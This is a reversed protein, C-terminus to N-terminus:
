NEKLSALRADFEERSLLKKFYDEPDLQYAKEVLDHLEDQSISQGVERNLWTELSHKDKNVEFFKKANVWAEELDEKFESRDFGAWEVYGELTQTQIVYGYGCRSDFFTNILIDDEYDGNIAVNINLDNSNHDDFIRFTRPRPQAKYEIKNFGEDEFFISTQQEIFNLTIQDKRGSKRMRAEKLKKSESMKDLDLRRSLGRGRERLDRDFCSNFSHSLWRTVYRDPDGYIPLWMMDIPLKATDTMGGIFTNGYLGEDKLQKKFKPTMKIHKDDVPVLFYFNKGNDCPFFSNEKVYNLVYNKQKQTLAERLTSKKTKNLSKSEAISPKYCLRNWPHSSSYDLNSSCVEDVKFVESHSEAYAIADDVNLFQVDDLMTTDETVNPKIINGAEDKLIYGVLGKSELHSLFYDTVDICDQGGWGIYRVNEDRFSYKTVGEFRFQFEDEVEKLGLIPCWDKNDLYEISEINAFNGNFFENVDQILLEFDASPINKDINIRLFDRFQSKPLSDLATELTEYKHFNDASEKMKSWRKSGELIEVPYISDSPLNLGAEPVDLSAEDYNEYTTGQSQEYYWVGDWNNWYIRKDTEDDISSIIYKETLKKMLQEGLINTLNKSSEDFSEIDDEDYCNAYTDFLDNVEDADLFPLNDAAWDKASAEDDYYFDGLGEDQLFKIFLDEDAQHCKNFLEDDSYDDFYKEDVIELLNEDFIGISISNVVEICGGLGEAYNEACGKDWEINVYGDYGLTKVAKLLLDDRIEDKRFCVTSWDKTKLDNWKIQNVLTNGPNLEEVKAKLEELANEDNADFINLPRVPAMEFVCGHTSNIYSSYMAAYAFVPTVYLCSYKHKEDKRLEGNKSGHYLTTFQNLIKNSNSM